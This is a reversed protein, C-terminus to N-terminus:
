ESTRSRRGRVTRAHPAESEDDPESPEPQPPPQPQPQPEAPPGENAVKIRPEGRVSKLLDPM